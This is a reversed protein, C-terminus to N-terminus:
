ARRTFFADDVPFGDGGKGCARRSCEAEGGYEDLYAHLREIIPEVTEFVMLSARLRAIHPANKLYGGYRKRHELVARREGRSEVSAQLHEICLAVREALTPEPLREGTAMLHKTQAFLWPNYMAGRGIMVGDVGTDFMRLADEPTAVDGNGIVPISVAEKVPALWFWDAQGKYAQERTRCHVALAKAGAQEVMRAVDLICISDADWGLRTKVTVPLSTAGVVAKVVAGFHELDRLLGAGDGRMAIKRVWCGANIDIFEPGAEEAKAAAHQMAEVRSGYIQIGIPREPDTLQIRKLSLPVNRSLAECNVFETYCIDAGHRKCILRFARDTVDEMPALILPREIDIAGLRM